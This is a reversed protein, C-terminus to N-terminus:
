LLTMRDSVSTELRGLKFNQPVGTIRSPTRIPEESDNRLTYDLDVFLDLLQHELEVQRFKVISDRRHQETVALRLTRPLGNAQSTAASGLLPPTAGPFLEPFAKWLHPSWDLSTTIREGWWIDAHLRDRDRLLELCIEDVIQLADQSATINTVLIFYNVDNRDQRNLVDKTLAQRFERVVTSRLESVRQEGTRHYKAQFLYRGPRPPEILPHPSQSIPINPRFEMYPNTRATEGDTGGDTGQLPTLRADEGFRATLIANVLRQFRKPDTLQNLDYQM